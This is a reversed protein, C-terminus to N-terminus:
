AIKIFIVQSYQFYAKSTSGLGISKDHIRRKKTVGVGEGRNRVKLTAVKCLIFSNPAQGFTLSEITEYKMSLWDFSSARLQKIVKGQPWKEKSM